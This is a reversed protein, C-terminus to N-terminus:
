KVRYGQVRKRSKEIVPTNTERADSMYALNVSERQSAILGMNLGHRMLVSWVEEEM